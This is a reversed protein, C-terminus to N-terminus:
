LVPGAAKASFQRALAYRDIKGNANKPLSRCVEIREPIMYPPLRCKLFQLIASRAVDKDTSVYAVMAPFGVADRVQVVASQLVGDAANLAAEIEELEIRYGMHKIQNDRRGIFDITRADERVRVLDGTRYVIENWASNLPNRMFSASTREADNVYGVGVQPGCLYLEGVRGVEVAQFDDDLVLFSFNEAIPGLTVLPHAEELDNATIQWASCMCTCETPGYVNFLAKGSGYLAFLKRLEPKPYAEGGFVIARLPRFTEASLMGMSMLYILFSPVSFWITAGVADLRAVMDAPRAALERSIAVLSAGNLLAGYFDFVSNDFYMPNVNTLVDDEKIAFRSAAWSAFNMVAAHTIVAGKPVGTSGSTYMIYAPDSGTVSGLVEPEEASSAALEEHSQADAADFVAPGLSRLREALAPLGDVVVMSPRATAFVHELRALPNQDDLNVYAAGIKLCALMAAYCTVTKTHVIAVVNGPVIGRGLLVAAVRNAAGNLEGYTVVSQEVHLAPRDALREALYAFRSGVNYVYRVPRM